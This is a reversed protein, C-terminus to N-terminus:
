ILLVNFPRFDSQVCIKILHPALFTAFNHALRGQCSVCVLLMSGHLGQVGTIVGAGLKKSTCVLQFVMLQLALVPSLGLISARLALLMNLSGKCIMQVFIETELLIITGLTLLVKTSFCCILLM